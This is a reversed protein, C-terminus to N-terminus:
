SAERRADRMERVLDGSDSFQRGGFAALRQRFRRAVEEADGVTAAALIRRAEQEMSHGAVAARPRLGAVVADDVQRITIQAM